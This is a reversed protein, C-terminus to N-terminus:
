NRSIRYNKFAFYFEKSATKIVTATPVALLMGIIGFLQSGAIILLIILLPHIDVSKSFVYPQVFGNDFTYIITIMLGIYPVASFDGFQIVSIIVAPIGVIVPGLYPVLHGLGAIIGLAISNQIGIFYFALGCAIGVFSADILWGRVYRGLQHTVKKIIWYSMESYKNPLFSIIGKIIRLRDKVIFFTTFPIIVLLAAITFINSFLSTLENFSNELQHSLITEVRNIIVGKHLFPFLKLLETELIAIQEQISISKLERILSEIQSILKPIYLSLGFYIAISLFSFVLLAAYLRKIKQKEFFNIIPDLLM